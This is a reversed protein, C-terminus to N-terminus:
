QRGLYFRCDGRLTTTGHERMCAPELCIEARLSHFRYLDFLRESKFKNLSYVCVIYDIYSAYLINTEHSFVLM